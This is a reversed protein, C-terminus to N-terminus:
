NNHITNLIKNNPRGSKQWDEIIQKDFFMKAGKKRPLCPIKNLRVWLRITEIGPKGEGDPLFDQLQQLSLINKM